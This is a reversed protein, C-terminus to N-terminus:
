GNYKFRRAPYADGPRLANSTQNIQATATGITTNGLTFNVTPKM